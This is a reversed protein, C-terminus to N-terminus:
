ETGKHSNCSRCLPQINSIDNVGGKSVPIIHDKTIHDTASCIACRGGFEELKRTWELTTHSGGSGILRARRRHLAANKIANSRERNNQVWATARAVNQESHEQAYRRCREQNKPGRNYTRQCPRCNNQLGDPRARNKNFQARPKDEHCKSCRPM